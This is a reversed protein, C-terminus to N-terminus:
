DIQTPYNKLIVEALAQAAKMEKDSFLKGIRDHFKQSEKIVM